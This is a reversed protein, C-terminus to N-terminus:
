LVVFVITDLYQIIRDPIREELVGDHQHRERAFV